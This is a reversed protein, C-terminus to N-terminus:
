MNLNEFFETQMRLFNLLGGLGVLDGETPFPGSGALPLREDIHRM